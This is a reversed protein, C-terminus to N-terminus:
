SGDLCYFQQQKTVLDLDHRVRAVEHDTAKLAERDM